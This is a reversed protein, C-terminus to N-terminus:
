LIIIKRKSAGWKELAVEIKRFVFEHNGVELIVGFVNSNMWASKLSIIHREYSM